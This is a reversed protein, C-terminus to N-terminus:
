YDISLIPSALYLCTEEKEEDYSFAINFNIKKGNVMTYNKIKKTYGYVTYLEEQKHQIVIKGKLEKLLDKVFADKEKRSLEGSVRGSISLQPSKKIHYAKLLDEVKEKYYFIDGINEKLDIQVIFFNKEEEQESKTSSIQLITDAYKGKMSLQTKDVEQQSSNKMTYGETIGLRQAAEKLFTEKQYKSTFEQKLLGYQKLKSQVKMNENHSFAEIITDDPKMMENIGVQIGALIWFLLCFYLKTKKSM